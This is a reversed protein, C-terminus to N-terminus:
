GAVWVRLRRSYGDIAEIDRTQRDVKEVLLGVHPHLDGRYGHQQHAVAAGDGQGLGRLYARATLHRSDRRQARLGGEVASREAQGTPLKPGVLRGDPELSRQPEDHSLRGDIELHLASTIDRPQGPPANGVTGSPASANSPCIAPGSASGRACSFRALPRM